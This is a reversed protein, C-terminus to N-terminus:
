ETKFFAIVKCPGTIEGTTFSGIGTGPDVSLTGNCGLVKNIAYGSAPTVTFTTTSVHSVDVTAPASTGNTHSVTGNATALGTVTYTKPAFTVTLTCDGTVNGTTHIDGSLGGACDGTVTDM